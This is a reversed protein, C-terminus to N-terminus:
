GKLHELAPTTRNPDIEYIEADVVEAVVFPDRNIRAELAARSEETAIIAGGGVDLSGVCHFVGDSFGEAIWANHAAMHEPADAKHKSFKLFVVFM